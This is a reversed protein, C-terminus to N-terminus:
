DVVEVDIVDDQRKTAPSSAAAASPQKNDMPPTSTTAPAQNEMRNGNEFFWAITATPIIDFGPSLEEVLALATFIGNGFLYNVLYASIPAWGIDAVEGVGPAAFSAIGIFDILICILLKTSPDINAGGGPSPDNNNEKNFMALALPPRGGPVMNHQWSPRISRVSSDPPMKNAPLLYAAHTSRTRPFPPVLLASVSMMTLRAAMVVLLLMAANFRPVLMVM